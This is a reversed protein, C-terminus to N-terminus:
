VSIEERVVFYASTTSASDSRFLSLPYNFYTGKGAFPGRDREPVGPDAIRRVDKSGAIPAM